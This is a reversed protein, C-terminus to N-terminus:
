DITNMAAFIPILMSCWEWWNNAFEKGCSGRSAFHLEFGEELAITCVEVELRRVARELKEGGSFALDDAYRPIGLTSHSPWDRSGAISDIPM